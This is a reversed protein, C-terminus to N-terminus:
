NQTSILIVGAGHGVGWRATAAVGDFRRIYRIAHPDVNRLTSVGGLKVNDLYVQVVSPSAFSDPGRASLWPPHLAEIADFVTIFHARTMEEGTMVDRDLRPVAATKRGSSCAGALVVVALIILRGSERRM